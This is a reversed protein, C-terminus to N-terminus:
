RELRLGLAVSFVDRPSVADRNMILSALPVDGAVVEWYLGVERLRGVGRGVTGGISFSARLASPLEYYRPPYRDPLRVWFQDGTTHTVALSATLPRLSWRRGLSARWPLWTLKGTVTVLDDGAHRAPVWGVLVDLELRERALDWGGGASLLGLLGALQVKAQDPWPGDAAAAGAPAAAAIAGVLALVARPPAM